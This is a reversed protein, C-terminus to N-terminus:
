GYFKDVANGDIHVWSRGQPKRAGMNLIKQKAFEADEWKQATSYVNSLLLFYGAARDPQIELALMHGVHTALEVNKHIRCGGLLAGWIADNPKMPMSEVIGLAEDLLGARSLLDIMCGYHEIWPEIGSTQCMRRFYHWGKDVYGSYSCASLVGLFTIEDPKCGHDGLKEMEEFLILAENGYGWKALGTIMSTWSVTNKNQIEIFVGFAEGIAGCSAYMHILANNLSLLLPCKQDRLIVFAYSHIWRGLNLDGLEACASLVVVLTVQDIEVRARWMKCFIALAQRCRGNQVCGDIMTTWSVVNREPMENFIRRAADVDKYRFCGALLSNWTVISREGMEDFLQRADRVGYGKEGSELYLNMLNTQVFVNSCFGNKLVKGHVQQGEKLLGGKRCGSIVYSCTYGDPLAESKEMEGFVCVSKLPNESHAHGRIIQNWLNTSPIKVQYFVRRATLLCGSSIYFSLLQALIFNKQTLGNIIIHSHIQNLQKISKCNQLLSFLHQQIARAKPPNAPISVEVSM